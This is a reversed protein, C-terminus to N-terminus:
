IVGQQESKPAIEGFLGLALGVLRAGENRIEWGRSVRKIPLFHM